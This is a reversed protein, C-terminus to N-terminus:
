RGDALQRGPLASPLNWDLDSARLEPSGLTYTGTRSSVLATFIYKSATSPFPLNIGPINDIGTLIFQQAKWLLLPRLYGVPWWTIPPRRSPHHWIPLEASTQTVLLPLLYIVKTFPAWTCDRDRGGLSSQEHAWTDAGPHGPVSQSVDVSSTM